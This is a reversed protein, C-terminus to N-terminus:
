CKKLVIASNSGGFALSTSLAYDATIQMEEVLPPVTLEPPLHAFGHSRVARGARLQLATLVFELAGAAGLTHGTLAKTSQYCLTPGFVRALTQGEVRDNAETGTGHANVFGVQAPAIGADAQMIRCKRTALGNKARLFMLKELYLLLLLVFQVLLSAPLTANKLTLLCSNMKALTRRM